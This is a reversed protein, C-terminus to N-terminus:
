YSSKANKKAEKKLKYLARIEPTQSLAGKTLGVTRAAEAQSFGQELVMSLAKKMEASRKAGM